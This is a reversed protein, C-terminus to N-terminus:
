NKTQKAAPKATTTKVAPKAAAPKKAAPKAASATAPKNAAAPKAAPKAVPAKAVSAKAAAPKAAGAKPAEAKPAEAKPAEAAVEEKAEWVSISRVAGKMVELKSGATEIVLNQDDISLVKGVIGSHLVVKAGPVLQAQMEAAQKKRKRSSRFMMFVMVAILGYMIFDTYGATSAKTAAVALFYNHM